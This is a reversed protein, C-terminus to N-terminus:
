TRKPGNLHFFIGTRLSEKLVTGLIAFLLDTRGDADIFEVNFKINSYKEFIHRFFGRKM